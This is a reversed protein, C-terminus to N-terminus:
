RVRREGSLRLSEPAFADSMKKSDDFWDCWVLYKGSNAKGAEKVTMEPGGSKLEVLDGAKFEEGMKSELFLYRDHYM